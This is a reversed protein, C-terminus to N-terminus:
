AAPKAAVEQAQPHLTVEEVPDLNRIGRSWREPRARRANEYVERRGDLIEATRGSHRNEPTIFGIGCHLHEGNYWDAFDSAWDAALELTEFRRFTSGYWYKATRFLAESYPNDDSVRPRSFSPTVGLKQLTALMTAGKMPGGNDSHLLLQDQEIGEAKCAATILAAAHDASESAHVAQGVIKRSWIDMIAYLYFFQGRVSSPLYTIDWSWIQRPARAVKEEPIARPKRPAKSRGRHKLLGEERLVRYMTSESGIYIGQDALLPVIQKPSKNRFETSCATEVITQREAESLKSKPPATPGKRQDDGSGQKRWRQVTRARLGIIACAAKLPAGSAVADTLLSIIM